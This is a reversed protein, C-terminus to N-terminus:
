PTIGKKGCHCILAMGDQEGGNVIIDLLILLINDIAPPHIDSTYSILLDM